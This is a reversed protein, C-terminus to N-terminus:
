NYSECLYAISVKNWQDGDVTHKIATLDKSMHRFIVKFRNSAYNYLLELATKYDESRSKQILVPIKEVAIASSAALNTWTSAVTLALSNVTRSSQVGDVYGDIGKILNKVAQLAPDESAQCLDVSCALLFLGYLLLANMTTVSSRCPSCFDRARSEQQGMYNFSAHM